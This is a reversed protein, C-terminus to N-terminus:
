KQVEKILEGVPVLEYDLSKVGRIIEPLAEATAKQVRKKDDGHADHLLLIDGGKLNKLTRSTIEGPTVGEDTDWVGKTWAVIRYGERKAVAGVLPSVFGHSTRLLAPRITTIKRILRETTKVEKEIKEAPMRHMKEHSFGHNGIEHGERSMKLLISENGAISKGLVFFTAKVDHRKLIKLVRETIGAGPGDDFSLGIKRSNRKGRWLSKTIVNFRPVYVELASLILLIELVVFTIFVYRPPGTYLVALFSLGAALVAAAAVALSVKIKVHLPM